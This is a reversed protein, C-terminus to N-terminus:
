KYLWRNPLFFAFALFGIYLIRSILISEAGIEEAFYPLITKLINISMMYFMATM